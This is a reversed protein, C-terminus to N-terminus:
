SVYSAPNLQRPPSSAGEGASSERRRREKRAKRRDSREKIIRRARESREAESMKKGGIGEEGVALLDQLSVRRKTGKRKRTGRRKPRGGGGGSAGGDADGSASGDGGGSSANDDGGDGDSPALSAALEKAAEAQKVLSIRHHRHTRGSTTNTVAHGKRKRKAPTGHEKNYAQIQLIAPRDQAQMAAQLDGNFPLADRAGDDDSSGGDSKGANRLAEHADKQRENIIWKILYKRVNMMPMIQSVTLKHEPDHPDCGRERVWRTLAPRDFAIGTVAALAPEKMMMMTIPCKFEDDIRESFRDWEEESVKLEVDIPPPWYKKKKKYKGFRFLDKFKEVKNVDGNRDAGIIEIATVLDRESMETNFGMKNKMTHWMSAGSRPPGTGAQQEQQEQQHQQQPGAAVALELRRVFSAPCMERGLSEDDFKVVIKWGLAGREPNSHKSGVVYGPQFASWHPLMAEVRESNRFPASLAHLGSKREDEGEDKVRVAVGEELREEPVGGGADGQSSSTKVFAPLSAETAACAVVLAFMLGFFSGALIWAFWSFLNGEWASALAAVGGGVETSWIVVNTMGPKARTFFDHGRARSTDRLSVVAVAAAPAMLLWLAECLARAFALDAALGVASNIAFGLFLCIVLLPAPAYWREKVVCLRARWVLQIGVVDGLTAGKAGGGPRSKRQRITKRRVASPKEGAGAAVAAAPAAATMRREESLHLSAETGTRRRRRGTGSQKRKKRQESREKMITRARETRAAADDADEDGGISMLEALTNVKKTGRRKRQPKPETAAAASQAGGMLAFIDDDDDGHADGAVDTIKPGSAPGMLDFLADGEIEILAQASAQEEAASRQRRRRGTGSKKRKKRQESREKMIARARETRAAAADADEDDGDGIAMLEALTNVKKTGRRKRQPKPETAATGRPGGGETGDGDPGPPGLPELSSDDNRRAEQRRAGKKKKRFTSRLSKRMANFGDFFWSAEKKKDNTGKTSGFLAAGAAILRVAYFAVVSVPAAAEPGSSEPAAPAAPASRTTPAAEPSATPAATTPADTIQVRQAFIARIDDTTLMETFISADTLTGEVCEDQRPNDIGECGLGSVVNDFKAPALLGEPDPACYHRYSM